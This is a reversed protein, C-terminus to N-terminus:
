KVKSPISRAENRVEEISAGQIFYLIALNGIAYTGLTAISGSVFNGGTPILKLLARAVERLTFATGVSIGASALFDRASELSLDRGSIYAIVVVMLLQITTLIPLDAIPIPESGIVFCAGACYAVVVNALKSQYYRIRANRSFQLRTDQPIEEILMRKLKEINWRWDTEPDPDLSGDPRFRVYSSVAIYKTNKYLIPYKKVHSKLDDLAQNIYQEKIKWEESMVSRHRATKIYPPDIEDCQTLIGVVLPYFGHHEKVHELLDIMAKIDGELAANVEKAKVVFLVV